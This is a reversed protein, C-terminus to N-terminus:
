ARLSLAPQSTSRSSSRVADDSQQMAAYTAAGQAAVRARDPAAAATAPAVDTPNVPQLSATTQALVTRSASDALRSQANMWGADDVSQAGTRDREEVLVDASRSVMGDPRRQSAEARAQMTARLDSPGTANQIAMSM